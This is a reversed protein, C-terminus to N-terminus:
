GFDDYALPHRSWADEPARRIRRPEFLGGHAREALACALDGADDRSHARVLLQLQLPSAGRRKVTVFYAAM